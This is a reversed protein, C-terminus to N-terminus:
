HVGGNPPLTGMAERLLRRHEGLAPNDEAVEGKAWRFTLLAGTAAMTRVLGRREDPDDTEPLRHRCHWFIDEVAETPLDELRIPRPAGDEAGSM